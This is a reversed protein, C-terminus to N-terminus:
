SESAHEQVCVPMQSTMQRSGFVENMSLATSVNPNEFFFLYSLYVLTCCFTNRLDNVFEYPSKNSVM